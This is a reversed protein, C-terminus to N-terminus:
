LCCLSPLQQQSSIPVLKFFHLTVFTIKQFKKHIEYVICLFPNKKYILCVLHCTYPILLSWTLLHLTNCFILISIGIFKILYLFCNYLKLSRKPFLVTSIQLSSVTSPFNVCQDHTKTVIRCLHELEFFDLELCKAWLHQIFVRINYIHNKQKRTHTHTRTHSSAAVTKM